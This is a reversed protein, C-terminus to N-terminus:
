YIILAWWIEQVQRSLTHEGITVLNLIMKRCLSLREVCVVLAPGCAILDQGEGEVLDSRRFMMRKGVELSIGM